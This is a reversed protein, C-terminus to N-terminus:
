SSVKKSQRPLAEAKLFLAYKLLHVPGVELKTKPVFGKKECLSVARDMASTTKFIIEDYGVERCFEIAREILDSGIRKRRFDPSVFLRRLFATREDERKIAVTGVVKGNSLAIFFAEGLKGYSSSIDDLDELPLTQIDKPFEQHLTEVILERAAEEDNSQCKRITIM